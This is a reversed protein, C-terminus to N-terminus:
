REEIQAPRAARVAFRYCEVSLVVGLCLGLMVLGFAETPTLLLM